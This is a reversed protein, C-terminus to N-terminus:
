NSCAYFFLKRNCRSSKTVTVNEDAQTPRYHSRLTCIKKNKKRSFYIVFRAQQIADKAATINRSVATNNRPQQPRSLIPVPSNIATSRSRENMGVSQTSVARLKTSGDGDRLRKQGTFVCLLGATLFSNCSANCYRQERM